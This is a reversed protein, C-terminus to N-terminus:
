HWRLLETNDEYKLYKDEVFDQLTYVMSDKGLNIIQRTIDFIFKPNSVSILITSDKEIESPRIVPVKGFNNEKNNDVIAIVNCGHTKLYGTIIRGFEGDGWVYIGKDYEKSLLRRFSIDCDEDKDALLRIFIDQELKIKNCGHTRDFRKNKELLDKELVDKCFFYLEKSQNFLNRLELSRYLYRDVGLEFSMVHSTIFVGNYIYVYIVQNNKNYKKLINNIECWNDNIYEIESNDKVCRFFLTPNEIEKLFRKVRRSYKNLIGNIEVDYDFNIEHPFSLGYLKDIVNVGDYFVNEKKMFYKFKDDLIKVVSEYNSFCWDFPGSMSRLGLKGMSSTTGCFWGLSFCNHFKINSM